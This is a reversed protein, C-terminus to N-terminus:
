KAAKKGAKKRIVEGKIRIGKQKYPEPKRLSRIKACLQGLRESYNKIRILTKKVKTAISRFHSGDFIYAHSPM